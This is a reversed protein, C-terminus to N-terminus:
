WAGSRVARAISRLDFLPIGKPAQATVRIGRAINPESLIHGKRRLAKIHCQVGNPTYGFEAGIERFTPPFGRKDISRQIFALVAHQKLTLPEPM